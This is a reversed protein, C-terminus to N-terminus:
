FYLPCPTGSFVFWVPPSQGTKAAELKAVGNAITGRVGLKKLEGAQANALRHWEDHLKSPQISTIGNKVSDNRPDNGPTPGEMALAQLMVGASITPLSPSGAHMVLCPTKRCLPVCRKLPAVLEAAAAGHSEIVSLLAKAGETTRAM